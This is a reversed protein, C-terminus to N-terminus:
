HNFLFAKSNLLAWLLDEFARRRATQREAATVNPKLTTRTIARQVASLDAQAEQPTPGRSFCRWTLADLLEADSKVTPLLTNVTGKDDMVQANIEQGNILVLAQAMNPEQGRECECTIQRAPRGFADLFDSHVQTDPLQIARYGVPMGPYPQAIGTVQSLADQLQEASLRRPLFHSYFRDDDRNQPLTASSLSYVASTAIQRQLHRLDFGHSVFDQVLADMLAENTPPNTERLDDVAEVLGRGMFHRWVRNVINRAFLTNKPSTMWDALFARRDGPVNLALEPGGLAKPPLARHLRPQEVDGSPLLTVTMADNVWVDDNVKRGIRGFFNAMQYYDNQTWKELPHNHCKACTIRTGLFAQSVNEALDQPTRAARYYNAPGEIFTNGSATLVERVMQNWPKNLRVSDHVWSYFAWMGKDKLMGRNVRLLDAWKYTWFDVYEPRAMLTDVLHTRKDPRTDALFARAEEPAPLTGILDLYARRVWDSDTAIPSPKLHLAALKAYVLTDIYNRRPLHAFDAPRVANPFPKSVRTFAVKDQYAVAIATEGCGQLTVHGSEDVTAVNEDNTSFRTWHTVDRRTGDSFRAVVRLSLHRADARPNANNAANGKAAMVQLATVHADGPQPGPAGERLWNLLIRVELSGRVLRKGGRHAVELLPKRLFLSQTPDALCIRRVQAQRAIAIYDLEPAYGRLSLKFGGKGAAAGHCAGQNCGVRTLVPIVDNVFSVGTTKRVPAVHSDPKMGRQACAVTGVSLLLALSFM